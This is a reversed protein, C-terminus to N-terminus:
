GVIPVKESVALVRERKQRDTFREADADWNGSHDLGDLLSQAMSLEGVAGVTLLEANGKVMNLMSADLSPESDTSWNRARIALRFELCPRSSASRDLFISSSISCALRSLCALRASRAREREGDLVPGAGESRCTPSSVGLCLLCISGVTARVGGSWDRVRPRAPEIEGLGLRGETEPTSKERGNGGRDASSGRGIGLGGRFAVEKDLLPM